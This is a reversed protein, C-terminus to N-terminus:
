VLQKGNSSAGTGFTPAVLFGGDGDAVAVLNISEMRDNCGGDKPEGSHEGYTDHGRRCIQEQAIIQGLSRKHTLSLHLMQTFIADGIQARLDIHGGASLHEVLTQDFAPDGLQHQALFLDAGHLFSTRRKM